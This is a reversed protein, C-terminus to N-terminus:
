GINGCRLDANRGYRWVVGAIFAFGIGVFLYGSCSPIGCKADNGYIQYLMDDKQIVVSGTLIADNFRRLCRVEQLYKAYLSQTNVVSIQSDM